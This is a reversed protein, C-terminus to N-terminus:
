LPSVSPVTHSLVNAMAGTNIWAEFSGSPSTLTESWINNKSQPTYKSESQLERSREADMDRDTNIVRLSRHEKSRATNKDSGTM